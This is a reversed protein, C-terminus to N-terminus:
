FPELKLSWLSLDNKNIFVLYNENSSLKLSVADLDIGLSSKPEVLVQAIDQNTDFLWFRDSFHTTGRYWLDPEGVGPPDAPVACFLMGAKKVSWVCKEALTAPLIETLANSTLNKAFTRTRGNEVYSYLTRKGSADPTAILGNLPGLLKTLAGGSTSLTYAYGAVDTSAKTYLVLSNGAAVLRWDTFPSTFLTKPKSGDFASSVISSTDRLIYFLINGSGVAVSGIDGRLFTSSTTSTLTLYLNEVTDSDEKLSRLLVANGDLRFYAEYIKPLTQNSIKTKVLTALDADYIHGTSRDVYRVLTTSANKNFVVAGAVPEASVRFLNASPSSFKDTIPQNSAGLSTSPTAPRQDGGQGFPLINLITEGVPVNPDRLFLYWGLLTILVLLVITILIILIKKM